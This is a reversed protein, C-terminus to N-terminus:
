KVSINFEVEIDTEGTTITSIASKLNPQHKLTIKLKGDGAASTKQLTTLGIPLNKTDKDAYNVSLLSSPNVAYFFQHEAGKSFIEPTKNEAPTKSEDLVELIVNYTVNAKLNVNDIIPAAGGAGDVDKWTAKVIDTLNAQNTYTLKVTTLLEQEDVKKTTEDSKCANLALLAVFIPMTAANTFITKLNKM